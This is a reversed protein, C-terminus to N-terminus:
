GDATQRARHRNLMPTPELIFNRRVTRIGAAELRGECYGLEWSLEVILRGRQTAREEARDARKNAYLADNKARRAEAEARAARREASRAREDTQAVRERIEDGTKQHETTKRGLLSDPSVGIVPEAVIAAQRKAERKAARKNARLDVLWWCLVLLWGCLVLAVFLMLALAVQESEM